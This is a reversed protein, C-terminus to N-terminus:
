MSHLKFDCGCGDKYWSASHRQKTTSSEPVRSGFLKKMEAAFDPCGALTGRSDYVLITEQNAEQARDIALPLLMHLPAEKDFLQMSDDYRMKWAANNQPLAAAILRMIKVHGGGAAELLASYRMGGRTSPTREIHAGQSLLLRMSELNGTRAAATTAIFGDTSIEGLGCGADLLPQVVVVNNGRCAIVIPSSGHKDLVDVGCGASVLM